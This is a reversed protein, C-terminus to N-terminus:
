RFGVTTVTTVTQYIADIVSLGYAIYGITGATLVLALVAGGRIVRRWPSAESDV